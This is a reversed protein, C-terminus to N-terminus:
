KIKGAERDAKYQAYTGHYKGDAARPVDSGGSGRLPTAPAPAKSVEVEAKIEALTNEAKAPKDTLKAEIKGLERLQSRESLGSLRAAEEPNNALHYLLLGGAKSELIADRIADSVKATSAAIKKDYDEHEKRAAEVSESWAKAQKENAEKQTRDREVAQATWDKLAAGYERADSFQDPQPEPGLPDTKPAEYKAKLADAAAKATAAEEKAVRAEETAAKARDEAERRQKAIESFRSEIKKNGKSERKVEEEADDVAETKVEEVPNLPGLKEDYFADANESTIVTPPTREVVAAETTM